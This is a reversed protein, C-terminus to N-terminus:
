DKQDIVRDRHEHGLRHWKTLKTLATFTFRHNRDGRLVPIPVVLKDGVCCNPLATVDAVSRKTDAAGVALTYECKSAAYRASSSAPDHDIEVVLSFDGAKRAELTVLWCLTPGRGSFTAPKASVFRWADPLAAKLSRAMADYDAPPKAQNAPPNDLPALLAFATLFFMPAAERPITTIM